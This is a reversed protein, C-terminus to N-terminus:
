YTATPTHVGTSGDGGQSGMSSGGAGGAGGSGAVINNGTMSPVIGTQYAIGIAAGGCGGGGGGGAGGNGGNGGTGGANGCNLPVAVGAYGGNGGVGGEGGAGGIGGSGGRGGTGGYITNYNISPATTVSATIFIVFSGGGASGGVGGAGGCGGAGGGGGRGGLVDDYSGNIINGGGGAGGGGGGGGATGASGVSGSAGGWHGNSVTGSTGATCGSGGTGNGGNGGNTGNYGDMHSTPIVCDFDVYPDPYSVSEIQGDYGEEGGSGATGGTTSGNSGPEGSNQTNRSPAPSCVNGGGHGGASGCSSIGGNQYAVNGKSRDNNCESNGSSHNTQVADYAAPNDARGGGAGGPLGADAQGANAGPGGTAGYIINYQIAFQNNSGTVYIAYSNGSAGTASQGYIVFGEVVTATTIGSAYITMKHPEHMTDNGRIITMTSLPHHDNDENRGWNDPRYGGYLSKKKDDKLEVTEEYTGDAVFLKSRGLAAARALGYGISKCPYRGGGTASPGLGCGATDFATTDGSSVYIADPDLMFECGDDPVNNLDFYVTPNTCIMRCEPVGIADCVGHANPNAYITTCNTQCNGCATDLYYKGDSIFGEDVTGDCDNDLYDCQDETAQYSAGFEAVGCAAWSGSACSKRAGVCVGRLPTAAGVPNDCAPGYSSLAEDVSGDCDNDKGDCLTEGSSEYTGNTNAAYQTQGCDLWGNVGGCAKKTGACVGDQDLCNPATLEAAEDVDGMCDDDIGNCQEPTGAVVAANCVVATHGANCVFAGSRQCAGTGITCSDNKCDVTCGASREWADDIKNNCDNDIGDCIEATATGGTVSCVTTTGNCIYTGAQQCAGYGATCPTNKLPFGDDIVGDCDDDLGNCLETFGSYDIIPANCAIGSKDSKCVYVGTRECVGQQGNSCVTNKDPWLEDVGNVCNNDLGDCVEATPTGPVANCVVGDGDDNCVRIGASQCIGEGAYCVTGKTPFDEDIDGLCDDDLGNCKEVAAPGPTVNCVTGTGATDCVKVGIRKCIGTGVECSSGLDTFTEDVETNCNDDVGNCLETNGSGDVIEANCVVGNGDGSCVNVGTRYCAGVGVDCPTNKLPFGNDIGDVCDDDIGNCKEATGTVVPANCETGSGDANCVNVGTRYCAVQLENSCPTNKLPFGNDIGDVCDDDIGNCKEPTGTVVEANCVVGNGDTACVNVGTRLCAGVGATCPTNKDTFDEDIDDMCDDDIGNCKEETGTVVPANCETGLGNAACVKVGTRLCAGVGVSCVTGKDDFGEDIGDKCNDDYGNCLEQAGPEGAEVNCEVDNKAGNCVLIGINRCVGEGVSCVDNKCGNPNDCVGDHRNWPDDIEDNCDEDVGDCTETSGTGATVNCEVDDKDANCVYLGVRACVGYGAFCLQNKNPFLEDVGDQCNNDLDDCLEEEPTGKNASCELGTHLADCVLIGARRCIGEGDYCVDSKCHGDAAPCIGGVRTWPEDSLGDCDNDAEDCKIEEGGSVDAPNPLDAHANCATGNEDCVYVGTVECVGVGDFCVDNKCNVTCSYEREWPEDIEGDCNNDLDDCSLENPSEPAPMFPANCDVSLEDEACVTLGATVCVGTGTFCVKQLTSSFPEDKQGNCDNDIGDCLTEVEEYDASHPTYVAPGCALWGAAGGCQKKAGSCAGQQNDCYPADATVEEDVGGVCNDDKGNCIELAGPYIAANTEDCDELACHAGLGANDGDFNMCCTLNDPYCAFGISLNNQDFMEACTYGNLCDANTACSPLCASTNSAFNVCLDDAHACDSQGNPCDICAWGAAPLCGETKHCLEAKGCLDHLATHLCKGNAFLDETCDVGDDCNADIDIDLDPQVDVIDEDPQLDTSQDTTEDPQVTDTTEDPQATDIEAEDPQVADPEDAPTDTPLPDDGDTPAVADDNEEDVPLEGDDPILEDPQIDTDIAAEKEPLGPTENVPLDDSTEEVCENDVCVFGDPCKKTDSCTPGTNKKSSCSAAILLSLAAVICVLRKM